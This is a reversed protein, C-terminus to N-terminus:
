VGDCSRDSLHAAYRFHCFSSAAYRIRRLRRVANRMFIRVLIRPYAYSVAYQRNAPDARDAFTFGHVPRSM